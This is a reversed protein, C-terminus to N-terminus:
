SKIAQDGVLNKIKFNHNGANTGLLQLSNMPNAETMLYNAMEINNTQIRKVSSLQDRFMILESQQLSTQSSNRM